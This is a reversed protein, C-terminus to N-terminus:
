TRRMTQYADTAAAAANGARKSVTWLIFLVVAFLGCWGYWPVDNLLSTLPSLFNAATEWSNYVFTMFTGFIGTGVVANQTTQAKSAENVEPLEERLEKTTAEARAKAIPRTWDEQEAQLLENVLADNLVAAGSLGRDLMFASIMGTTDGGFKGDDKLVYGRGMLMRQVAACDANKQGSMALAWKNQVPTKAEAAVEAPQKVVPQDDVHAVPSKKWYKAIYDPSGLKTWRTDMSHQAWARLAGCSVSAGSKKNVYFITRNANAAKTGCVAVASASAPARLAKKAVVSGLFHALYADGETWGAGLSRVNEEWFRAGMEIAYEPEFKLDDVAKQTRGTKWGPKYKNVMGRWTDRLFQFLGGASSTGARAKPKGASEIAVGKNLTTDSIIASVTHKAM